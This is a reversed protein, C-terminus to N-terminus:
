VKAGKFQPIIESGYSRLIDEQGHTM